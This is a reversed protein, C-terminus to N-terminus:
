VEMGKKEGKRQNHEKGKEESRTNTASQWCTQFVLCNRTISTPTLDINGAHWWWCRVSMCGVLHCQLRYEKKEKWTTTVAVFAFALFPLPNKLKWM